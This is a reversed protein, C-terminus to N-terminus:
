QKPRPTKEQSNLWVADLKELTDIDLNDWDTIRYLRLMEGIEGYLIPNTAMGVPNRGRIREYWDILYDLPGEPGEEAEEKPPDPKM